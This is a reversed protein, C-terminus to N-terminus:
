KAIKILKRYENEIRSMETEWDAHEKVLKPGNVLADNNLKENNIVEVILEALQSSNQTQFSLGTKNRVTWFKNAPIDSSLIVCGSALGELISVPTGDSLAPSILIKSRGLLDILEENPVYGSFTVLEELKKEEVFKQCKDLLPGKGCMIVKYNQIKDSIKEVAELITFPSYVEQFGRNFIILNEKKLTKFKEVDIGLPSVIANVDGNKWECILQNLHDAVSIVLNSNNVTKKVIWALLKSENPSILVDSGLATMVKPYNSIRSAYMGHNVLSFGHVIDPGFSDIESQLKKTTRRVASGLNFILSRDLAPEPGFYACNEGENLSFIQVQHGKDNLWNVWRITHISNVNAVVAIRLSSTM